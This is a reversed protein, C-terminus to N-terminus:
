KLDDEEPATCFRIRSFLSEGHALVLVDVLQGPRWRIEKLTSKPITIKGIIPTDQMPQMVEEFQVDFLLNDVEKFVARAM